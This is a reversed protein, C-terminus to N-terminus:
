VDQGATTRARDLVGQADIVVEAFSIVDVNDIVRDALRNALVQHLRGVGSKPQLLVSRRLSVM